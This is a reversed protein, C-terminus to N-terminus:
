NAPLGTKDIFFQRENDLEKNVKGLGDEGWFLTKTRIGFENVSLGNAKEWSNLFSQAQECGKTQLLGWLKLMPESDDEKLCNVIDLSSSMVNITM